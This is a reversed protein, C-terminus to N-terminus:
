YFPKLHMKNGLVKDLSVLQLFYRLIMLHDIGNPARGRDM